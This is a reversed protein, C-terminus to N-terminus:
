PAAEFVATPCLQRDFGDTDRITHHAYVSQGCHRCDESPPTKLTPLEFEKFPHRVGTHANRLRGCAACRDRPRPPRPSM